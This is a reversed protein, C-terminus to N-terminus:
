FNIRLVLQGIRPAVDSTVQGFTGSTFSTTPLNYNTHNLVNFFEARFVTNVHEFVKTRKELAIDFDAMGPGIVSNRAFTGETIQSATPIYGAASWTSPVNFDAPDFYFHGTKGGNLVRVSSAPLTQVFPVTLNPKVLGPAGDGAPGPAFLTAARVGATVNFPRGTQVTVIPYLSWGAILPKPGNTWAKEFPLTWGGSLVLRRRIDFDSNGVLANRNYYPVTSTPEQWGSANDIAHSWTFALTFFMSGFRPVNSMRKTLSTLLGSYNSHGVNDITQAARFGQPIAGPYTNWLRTSTGLVVPDEDMYDLLRHSGNGV